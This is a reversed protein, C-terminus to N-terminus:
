IKARRERSHGRGPWVWGAEMYGRTGRCASSSDGAQSVGVGAWGRLVKDLAELPAKGAEAGGLAVWAATVPILSSM